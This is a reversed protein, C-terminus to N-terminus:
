LSLSYCPPGKSLLDNVTLQCKVKGVAAAMQEMFKGRLSLPLGTLGTYRDVSQDPKSGKCIVMIENDNDHLARIDSNIVIKM